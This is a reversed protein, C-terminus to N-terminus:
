SNFINIHHTYIKDVPIYYWRYGYMDVSLYLNKNVLTDGSLSIM